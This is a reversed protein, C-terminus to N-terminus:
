NAIIFKLKVDEIFSRLLTTTEEINAHFPIIINQNTIIFIGAAFHSVRRQFAALDHIM